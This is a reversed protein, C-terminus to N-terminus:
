SFQGLHATATAYACLLRQHPYAVAVACTRQFKIIKDMKGPYFDRPQPLIPDGPTERGRSGCCGAHPDARPAEEPHSLTVM